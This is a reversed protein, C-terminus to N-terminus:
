DIVSGLAWDEAGGATTDRSVLSWMLGGSGETFLGWRIAEESRGVRGGVGKVLGSLGVRGRVFRSDRMCFGYSWRTRWALPKTCIRRDCTGRRSVSPDVRLSVAAARTSLFGLNQLLQASNRSLM